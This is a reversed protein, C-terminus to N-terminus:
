TACFSLHHDFVYGNGTIKLHGKVWLRTGYPVPLFRLYRRYLVVALWHRM